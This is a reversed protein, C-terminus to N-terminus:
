APKVCKIDQIDGKTKDNWQVQVPMGTELKEPEVDEVPLCITSDAGELKVAGIVKPKELDKFEGSGDLEVYALTFSELTGKGSLELNNSEDIATNCKGCRNRPPAYTYGCGPCKSALLKKDALAKIFREMQSGVSWSFGAIFPISGGAPVIGEYTKEM